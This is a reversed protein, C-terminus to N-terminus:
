AYAVKGALLEVVAALGKACAEPCHSTIKERSHAAFRSRMEHNRALLAMASALQNVAGAEVVFGNSGNEVLDSACGAVSTTIIPLGCAMAENVVLGWPDSHTPFILMDALAYFAPLDERHVFGAFQVHGSHLSKARRKLEPQAAGNGAFVLGVESRLDRPLSAYADLADFVGKSKTLRGSYLFFREPLGYHARYLPPNTRVKRAFQGFFHNDVANPATVIAEGPIGFSLLYDFAPRGPVVFAGCNRLFQRKLFEVASHGRRHDRNTSESWLALPVAHRDCWRATQWSALYSYGGCIVLDPSIKELYRELGWNLLFNYAFLRRRWNPLVYYPFRIEDRYVRWERLSPDTESLFVVHPEVTTSTALCNFVPLRYPAIIETIIAVRPKM